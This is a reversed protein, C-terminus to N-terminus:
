AISGAKLRHFLTSEGSTACLALERLGTKSVLRLEAVFVTTIPPALFLSPIKNIDETSLFGRLGVEEDM